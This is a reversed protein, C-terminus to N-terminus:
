YARTFGGDHLVNLGTMHDSFASLLGEVVVGVEEPTGYKRLPINATEDALREEFTVGANAARKELGEKYWPVLTGGLSLTNVHNGQEGLAFALTKA